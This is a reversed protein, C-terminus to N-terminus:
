KKKKKGQQMREHMEKMQNLIAQFKDASDYMMDMLSMNDPYRLIKPIITGNKLNHTCSKALNEAENLTRTLGMFFIDPDQFKAPNDIHIQVYSVLYIESEM